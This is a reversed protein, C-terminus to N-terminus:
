GLVCGGSTKRRKPLSSEFEKKNVIVVNNACPPTFSKIKKCPEKSAKAFLQETRGLFLFAIIGVLLYVSFRSGM